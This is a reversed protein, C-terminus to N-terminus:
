PNNFKIEAVVPLHDSPFHGNRIDTLIGHRIVSFGPNVFIYDIRRGGTIQEFGNWTTTPGHHEFQSHHFGDYLKVNVPGQDQETLIKYPAEDETANFDGTLVLADTGAIEDIRQLILEASQKRAESGRHDFHTNFVFFSQSNWTDELRVWTVIRPLAADWSQSGIVDPTESLWFTGDEIHKFREKRYFIASFEGKKEGDNRGVGVRDFEPLFGDLDELQHILGEQIGVIDAQHFRMVSAVYDNRNPWADPGDDPNDYRINFSMVRITTPHDTANNGINRSYNNSERSGSIGVILIIILISFIGSQTITKM